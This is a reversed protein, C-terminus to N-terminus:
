ETDVFYKEKIKEINDKSPIFDDGATKGSLAVMEAITSGNELMYKIAGKREKYDAATIDTEVMNIVTQFSNDLNDAINKGKQQNIMARIVDAAIEVREAEGGNFLEYSIFLEMQDSNMDQETGDNKFGAIDANVAYKVCGVIDCVKKFAASNFKMYRDVKIDFAKEVFEKASAAGGSEYNTKLSIQANDVLAISNNPIGIFEMKKHYPRSRLLMFTVPENKEPDDLILLITHNDEYTVQGVSRAVPEKLEEGRGLGLYNYAGAALGGVVILGIFMTVLFPIAVHGTKKKAM